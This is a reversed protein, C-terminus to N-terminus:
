SVAIFLNRHALASGATKSANASGAHAMAGDSWAFSFPVVTESPAFWADLVVSTDAGVDRSAPSALAAGPLPLVRSGFGCPGVAINSRAVAVSLDSLPWADAM